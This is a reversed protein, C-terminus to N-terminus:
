LPSEAFSPEVVEVDETVTVAASVVVASDALVVVVINPCGTTSVAVTEEETPIGVPVTVKM